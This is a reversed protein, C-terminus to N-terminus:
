VIEWQDLKSTDFRFREGTGTWMWTDAGDGGDLNYTLFYVSNMGESALYNLAGIIGKGKGNQWTPDGPTWDSVHGPYRHLGDILGPTSLGGTDSTGDFEWYALFNEPSDAGAKLYYEGSGAYQLHHGGVYRVTGRDLPNGSDPNTAAITFQGTTGNFGTATGATPDLAIAVDTGTRFSATYAWTGPEDPTFHVRWQNGATASTNAANGDAAFFGPVVTAKGTPSTFTVNLRYDRFPNVAASEGSQPGTFTVTTRHWTQLDGTVRVPGPQPPPPPPVDPNVTSLRTSPIITKPQGPGAFSLSIAVTGNQQYHELRIAHWGASLNVTATDETVTHQTWNNIVLNGDIWLRVGDNSTTSFTWAGATETRVFGTWRESYNDDPAVATGAPANGWDAESFDVVPDVRTTVLSELTATDFYSGLLGAAPM